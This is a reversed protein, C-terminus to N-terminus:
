KVPILVSFIDASWHPYQCGLTPLNNQVIDGSLFTGIIPPNATDSPLFCNKYFLPQITLTDIISISFGSGSSLLSSSFTQKFLFKAHYTITDLIGADGYETITQNSHFIIFGYSSHYQGSKLQYPSDLKLGISSAQSQITTVPNTSKSKSCGVVILLVILLTYYKM